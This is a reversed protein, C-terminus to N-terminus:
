TVTGGLRLANLLTPVTTPWSVCRELDRHAVASM